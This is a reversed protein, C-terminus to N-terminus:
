VPVPPCTGDALSVARVLAAAAAVDVGLHAPAYAACVGSRRRAAPARRGVANGRREQYTAVAVHVLGQYFDREAPPAGRAM